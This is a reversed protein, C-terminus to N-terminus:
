NGPKLARTLAVASAPDIVPLPPDRFGAADRTVVARCGAAAGAAACVADEFDEWQMALAQRIVADDVTAVRFVTLLDGVARASFARGRARRTLYALATVAHAPILGNVRGREVEAWLASAAAVHPARGLLVDLM